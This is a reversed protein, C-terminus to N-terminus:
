FLHILIQSPWVNLAQGVQRQNAIQNFCLDSELIRPVQPKSKHTGYTPHILNLPYM